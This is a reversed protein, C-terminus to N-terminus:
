RHRGTILAATVIRSGIKYFKKPTAYRQELFKLWDSRLLITMHGLIILIKDFLSEWAADPKSVEIREFEELSFLDQNL